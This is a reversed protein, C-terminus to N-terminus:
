RKKSTIHGLVGAQRFEELIVEAQPRTVNMAVPIVIRESLEEADKKKKGLKNVLISVVLERKEDDKVQSLFVNCNAEPGPRGAVSKAPAAATPAQSAPASAATKAPPTPTQTAPTKAAASAKAAPVQKASTNKKAPVTAPMDPLELDSFFDDEADEEQTM